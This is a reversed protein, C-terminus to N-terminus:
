RLYQTKRRKLSTREREFFTSIIIRNNNNYKKISLFYM